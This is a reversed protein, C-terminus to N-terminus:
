FEARNKERGDSMREEIKKAIFSAVAPRIAALIFKLLIAVIGAEAAERVKKPAETSGNRNKKPRFPLTALAVGALVTGAIWSPKHDRYSRRLKSPVDLARRTGGISESLSARARALEAILEDKEDAM